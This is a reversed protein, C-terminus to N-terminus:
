GTDLVTIPVVAHLSSLPHSNRFFACLVRLCRAPWEIRAIARSPWAGQWGPLIGHTSGHWAPILADTQHRSLTPRAAMVAHVTKANDRFRMWQPTASSPHPNAM